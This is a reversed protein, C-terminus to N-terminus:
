KFFHNMGIMGTHTRVKNSRKLVLIEVRNMDENCYIPLLISAKQYKKLIPSTETLEDVYSKKTVYPALRQRVVENTLIHSSSSYLLNYPSVHICKQILNKRLVGKWM